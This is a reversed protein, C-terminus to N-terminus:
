VPPAPAPNTGPKDGGAIDNILGAMKSWITSGIGTGAVAAIIVAVVVLVGMYEAATQGREERARRNIERGVHNARICVERFADQATTTISSM